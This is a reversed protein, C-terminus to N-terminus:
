KDRYMVPNLMYIFGETTCNSLSQDSFLCIDLGDITLGSVSGDDEFKYYNYKTNENFDATYTYSSYWSYQGWKWNVLSLYAYSSDYRGLYDGANLIIKGEDFKAHLIFEGNYMAIYLSDSTSNTRVNVHYTTDIVSNRDNSTSKSCKLNWNGILNKTDFQVIKISDKFNSYSYKLYGYRLKGTTNSSITVYLSDNDYRYSIWKEDSNFIMPVNCKMKYSRTTGTNNIYVYGSENISFTTGNQSVNVTTSDKGSKIVVTTHRSYRTNNQRAILKISDKNSSVNLWNDKAYVSFANASEVAISKTGGVAPIDTEASVVKISSIGEKYDYNDCAALVFCCLVIICINYVRKM